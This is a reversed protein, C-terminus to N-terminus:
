NSNEGQNSPKGSNVKVSRLADEPDGVMNPGILTIDFEDPAATMVEERRLLLYTASVKPGFVVRDEHQLNHARLKRGNILL